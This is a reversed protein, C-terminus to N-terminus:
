EKWNGSRWSHDFVHAKEFVGRVAAVMEMDPPSALAHLNAELEHVKAAGTINSAIGPAAYCFRMGLDAIDIGRADCLAAADRAAAQLEPPAPHWPQAGARTLMGMSLPSANMVGVGHRQAVPLLETALRTNALTYHAYSIVVDLDCREIAQALIGLPYGSMGVFRAKGLRKLRHLAAATDNFVAEFDTAFEIDHAILIDVYDTGLRRLSAEVSQEMHSPSFDFEAPGDRGAKTCVFVKERWGGKLAEGLVSESRTQGYFPSTDILNIGADIARHVCANAEGPPMTGYMDGLAVGGFSVASVQLGTRGLERRPIM